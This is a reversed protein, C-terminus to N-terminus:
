YHKLTSEQKSGSALIRQGWSILPLRKCSKAKLTDKNHYSFKNKLKCFSM